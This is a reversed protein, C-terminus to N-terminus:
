GLDNGGIEGRVFCKAPGEERETRYRSRDVRWVGQTKVLDHDSPTESSTEDVQGYFAM